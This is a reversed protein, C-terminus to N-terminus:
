ILEINDFIGKGLQIFILSLIVNTLIWGIYETYIGFMKNLVLVLVLNIIVGPIITAFVSFFMLMGKLADSAIKGFLRVSLVSAYNFIAGFSVYTMICLLITIIDAKCLIGGTVFVLIGDSLTKILNALTSYFVKKASTDPILYIYPNGLEQFWKGAFLSTVMFYALGYTLFILNKIPSVISFIIAGAVILITYLNILHFGTKRYELLHRYFIAKAGSGKYEISAKRVKIKGFKSRDVQSVGNKSGRKVMAINENRESSGLVDEYYDLNMKYLLLVLLFMTTLMLLLYLVFFIDLSTTIKSILIRVWGIIPIYNWLNLNFIELATKWLNSKGLLLGYGVFGIVGIASANLLVNVIRKNKYSRSALSYIIMSLMSMCLAFLFFVLLFYFAGFKVLHFNLTLNPIQFLLFFSFILTSYIQKIFGYILIDAPSIPSTFLFNVDSMRFSSSQTNVHSKAQSFFWILLVATVIAMLIDPSKFKQEGKGFISSLILFIMFVATLIYPILRSPKNKIDNFYNIVSRRLIFFLPKM